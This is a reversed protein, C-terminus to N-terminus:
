CTVNYHYFIIRGKIQSIVSCLTYAVSSSVENMQNAKIEYRM